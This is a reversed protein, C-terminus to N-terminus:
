SNSRLNMMAIEIYILGYMKYFKTCYYDFNTSYIKVCYGRVEVLVSLIEFYTDAVSMEFEAIWNLLLGFSNLKCCFNLTLM